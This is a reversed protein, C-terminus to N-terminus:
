ITDNHASYYQASLEDDPQTAAPQPSRNSQSKAEDAAVTLLNALGTCGHAASMHVLGACTEHIYDLVDDRPFQEALQAGQRSRQSDLNIISSTQASGSKNPDGM